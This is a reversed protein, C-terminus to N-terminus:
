TSKMLLLVFSQDQICRFLMLLRDPTFDGIREQWIERAAKRDQHLISQRRHSQLIDSLSINDGCAKTRSHSCSSAPLPQVLCSPTALWRRNLCCTSSLTDPFQSFGVHDLSHLPPYCIRFHGKSELCTQFPQCHCHLTVSFSSSSHLLEVGSVPTRPREITLDHWPRALLDNVDGM